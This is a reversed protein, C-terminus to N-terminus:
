NISQCWVQMGVADDQKRGQYRREKYGGQQQSWFILMM